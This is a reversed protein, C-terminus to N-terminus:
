RMVKVFDSGDIVTTDFRRLGMARCITIFRAHTRPYRGVLCGASWRGVSGPASSTTHQNIFFGAGVDVADGTRKGDENNDRHVKIAGCQVLADQDYHKGLQWCELYQDFAIRAAGKPNMRNETYHRGPETTAQAAMLVDGDNTIVCRVDNWEDLRDANLTALDTNIGELYVINWARIKYGKLRM